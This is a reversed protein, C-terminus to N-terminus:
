RHRMDDLGSGRKECIFRSPRSAWQEDGDLALTLFPPAIGESGLANEHNITKKILCLSLKIKIIVELKCNVTGYKVCIWQIPHYQHHLICFFTIKVHLTYKLCKMCSAYTFSHYWKSVSYLTWWARVAKIDFIQQPYVWMLSSLLWFIIIFHIESFHHM